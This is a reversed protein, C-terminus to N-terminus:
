SAPRSAALCSSLCLFCCLCCLSPLCLAFPRYHTTVGNRAIQMPSARALEQALFLWCRHISALERQLELDTATPQCTLAEKLSAGDQVAKQRAASWSIANASNTESSFCYQQRPSHWIAAARTTCQHPMIPTTHETILFSSSLISRIPLCFCCWAAKCLMACCDLLSNVAFSGKRLSHM